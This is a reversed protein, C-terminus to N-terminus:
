YSQVGVRHITNKVINLLQPIDVPNSMGQGEYIRGYWHALNHFHRNASSGDVFLEILAARDPMFINHMLGAGHPGVMIDTQVDIGIQEEFTLVNYDVDQVIVQFEGNNGVEPNTSLSKLARVVEADNSIMRGLRRPGFGEWLKCLFFSTQDNCYKREPWEKTARRSMYTIRITKPPTPQAYHTRHQLGLSRIVFDSYARVLATRFCPTDWSAITTPAAPGYIGFAVSKFCVYNNEGDPKGYKAKLQFATLAPEGHSFVKSWMERCICAFSSTVDFDYCLM